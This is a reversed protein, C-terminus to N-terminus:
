FVSDWKEWWPKSSKNRKKNIRQNEINQKQITEQQGYTDQGYNEQGYNEQSHTGQGSGELALQKLERIQIKENELEKKIRLYEESKALKGKVKRYDINMSRAIEEETSASPGNSSGWNVLYWQTERKSVRRALDIARGTKNIRKTQELNKVKSLLKSNIAKKKESQTKIEEELITIQEKAKESLLKEQKLAESLSAVQIQQNEIEKQIKIEQEKISYYKGKLQLWEALKFKESNSGALLESDSIKKLNWSGIKKGKTKVSGTFVNNKGSGVLSYFEEKHKVEIPSPKEKDNKELVITQPHWDNIFAVILMSNPNKKREIYLSYQKNKDSLTKFTSTIGSISGVYHGEDLIPFSRDINLIPYLGGAALLLGFLSLILKFKPNKSMHTNKAYRIDSSGDWDWNLYKPKAKYKRL